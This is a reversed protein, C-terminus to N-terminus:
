VHFHTGKIAGMVRGFQTMDTMHTEGSAFRCILAEGFALVATSGTTEIKIFQARWELSCTSMSASTNMKTENWKMQSSWLMHATQIPREIWIPFDISM